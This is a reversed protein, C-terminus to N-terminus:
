TTISAAQVTVCVPPTRRSNFLRTVRTHPETLTAPGRGLFKCHIFSFHIRSSLSSPTRNAISLHFTYKIVDIFTYEKLQSALSTHQIRHSGCLPAGSSRMSGGCVLHGTQSLRGGVCFWKLTLRSGVLVGLAGCLSQVVMSIFPTMSQSALAPQRMLIRVLAM